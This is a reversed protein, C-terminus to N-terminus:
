LPNPFQYMSYLDYFRLLYTVTDGLYFHDCWRVHSWSFSIFQISVKLIGQKKFDSIFSQICNTLANNKNKEYLQFQLYNLRKLTGKWSLTKSKRDLNEAVTILTLGDSLAIIRPFLSVGFHAARQYGKSWVSLQLGIENTDVM